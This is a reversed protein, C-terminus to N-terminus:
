ANNNKKIGLKAFKMHLKKEGYNDFNVTGTMYPLKGKLTLIKGYGFSEHLVLDGEKLKNNDAVNYGLQLFDFYEIRYTIKREIFVNNDDSSKHCIIWNGDNDYEYVITELYIPQGHHNSTLVSDVDNLDNYTYSLAKIFESSNDSFIFIRKVQGKAEYEYTKKIKTVIDYIEILRKQNDYKFIEKSDEVNTILDFCEKKELLVQENYCYNIKYVPKKNRDLTIIEIINGNIDYKYLLISQLIKLNEDLFINQLTIRGSEDFESIILEQLEIENEFEDIVKSVFEVTTNISRM